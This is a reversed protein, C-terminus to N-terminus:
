SLKRFSRSWGRYYYHEAHGLGALGALLSEPARQRRPPFLFSLKCSSRQFQFIQISFTSTFHQNASIVNLSTMVKPTHKWMNKLTQKRERQNGNQASIKTFIEGSLRRSAVLSNYPSNLNGFIYNCARRGKGVTSGSWGLPSARQSLGASFLM